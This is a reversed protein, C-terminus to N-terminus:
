PGEKLVNQSDLICTMISAVLSSLKTCIKNNIVISGKSDDAIRLWDNAGSSYTLAFVRVHIFNTIPPIYFFGFLLLRIICTKLGAFKPLLCAPERDDIDLSQPEETNSIKAVKADFGVFSLLQTYIFDM